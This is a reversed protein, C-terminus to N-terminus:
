PRQYINARHDIAVITVVGSVRDIIEFDGRRASRLGELERRLPKVVRDPDRGPTWLHVRSSGIGSLSGLGLASEHVAPM